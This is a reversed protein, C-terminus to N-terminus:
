DGDKGQVWRLADSAPTPDDPDIEGAPLEFDRPDATAPILEYKECLRRRERAVPDGDAVLVSEAGRLALARPSRPALAFGERAAAERLRGDLCVFEADRAASSHWALAAALQLADTARLAHVALAREAAQRVRDTPLVESWAGALAELLGLASDVGMQGLGGGRERRRLASACEVRSGWWVVMAEDSGLLAHLAPSSPEEVLLPTIASADWFRM